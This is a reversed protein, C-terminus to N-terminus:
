KTLFQVADEIALKGEETEVNLGQARKFYIGDFFTKM